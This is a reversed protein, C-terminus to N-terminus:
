SPNGRPPPPQQPYGRPPPPQQPYGRPPPPQQQPNGGQGGAARQQLSSLGHQAAGVGGVKMFELVAGATIVLVAALAIWLGWGRSFDAPDPVDLFAVLFFIDATVVLGLAIIELPIRPPVVRLAKVAFAAAVLLFIIVSLTGTGRDWANASLGLGDVTYWPCFSLLFYVVGGVVAMLGGPVIAHLDFGAGSGSSPPPYYGGQGGPNPGPQPNNIPNLGEPHDSM